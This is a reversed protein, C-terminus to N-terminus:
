SKKAAGFYNLLSSKPNSVEAKQRKGGGAADGSSVKEEASGELVEGSGDNGEVDDGAASIPRKSRAAKRAAAAKTIISLPFDSKLFDLAEDSHIAAVLDTDKVTKAGRGTATRASWSAVYGIFLEVSKTIVSMAEKQVNKVAPDLKM